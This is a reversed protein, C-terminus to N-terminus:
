FDQFQWFAFPATYTISLYPDVSTGSAESTSITVLNSKDTAISANTTDHGERVGLCTTGKSQNSYTIIIGGPGSFGGYGAAGGNNSGGGGGGAGGLWLEGTGFTAAGGGSGHSSNTGTHQGGGGGGGATGYGTGWESGPSGSGGSGVSNVSAGGGGGGGGGSTGATGATNAPGGAGGGAGLYNNGGNGGSTTGQTANAGGGHGGGGGGGRPSSTSGASGDAGNGNPGGAGGGGGGAGVNRGGGNGGSYKVDGVGSGSSGGAGGGGSATGSGPETAASGGKAGVVVASGGISACNSTSNCFYTDGGDAPYNNNPDTLNGYAGISYAVVSGPALAVNTAKSYAGGGGGAGGGNATTTTGARAGGGAGVVEITNNSSNWDYPVTWESGTTIFLPSTTGCNNTEGNKKIWSRGTANLTFTMYANATISTIDKRQGADIGETPSSVAGCQDYDESSLEYEKPQSTQVVTLYDAGDNDTNTPTSTAYVNLSASSVTAGFPILSTDFPFFSRYIYYGTSVGDFKGTNTHHYAGVTTTLSAYLAGGGLGLGGFTADHAGAWSGSNFNGVYGDGSHDYLTATVAHALPIDFFSFFRWHASDFIDKPASDYELHYWRGLYEVYQRSPFVTTEYIARGDKEVGVQKTWSSEKRLAVVEDEAFKEPLKEGLYTYYVTTETDIKKEDHSLITREKIKTVENKRAQRELNSGPSTDSVVLGASAVAIVAILALVATVLADKVIPHLNKFHM